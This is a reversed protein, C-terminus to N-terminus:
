KVLREAGFFFRYTVSIEPGYGGWRNVRRGVLQVEIATNPITLFMSCCKSINKQVHKVTSENEWSDKRIIDVAYKGVKNWPERKCNLIEGTLPSWINMYAHYGRAFSNCEHTASDKEVLIPIDIEYM